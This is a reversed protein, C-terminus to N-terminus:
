NEILISKNHIQKLFFGAASIINGRKHNHVFDHFGNFSYSPKEINRAFKRVKKIFDFFDDFIHIFFHFFQRLCSNIKGRRPHPHPSCIINIFVSEIEKFHGISNKRRQEPCVM